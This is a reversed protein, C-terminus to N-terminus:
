LSSKKTLMYLFQVSWRPTPKVHGESISNIVPFGGQLGVQMRNAFVQLGTQAQWSQGGSLDVMEQVQCDPRAMEYQCGATPLFQIRKRSFARTYVTAAATLRNGFRYRLKNFTGYRYNAELQFGSKEVGGAYMLHMMGDWSGSGLQMNPNLMLQDRVADCTGTPFKVGAGAQLLHRYRNSQLPRNFVVYNLLLSADGMGSLRWTSQGQVRENHNLPVFAYLHINKRLAWKGMFELSSYRERSGEDVQNQHVHSRSIFQRQQLRLGVFSSQYRPVLGIGSASLSGGCVDCAAVQISLLLLALLLLSNLSWKIGLMGKM